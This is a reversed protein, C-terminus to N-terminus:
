CSLAGSEKGSEKSSQVVTTKRNEATKVSQNVSKRSRALLGARELLVRMQSELDQYSAQLCDPRSVFLMLTGAPLDASLSRYAARLRRKILNRDVAKKSIRKSVIFGVLRRASDERLVVLRLLSQHQTTGHARLQDFDQQHRLREQRPLM